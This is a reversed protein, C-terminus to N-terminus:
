KSENLDIIKRIIFVFVYVSSFGLYYLFTFFLLYFGGWLGVM